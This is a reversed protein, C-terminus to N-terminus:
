GGPRAASEARSAATGRCTRGPSRPPRTTTGKTQLTQPSCCSPGSSSMRIPSGSGTKSSDSSSRSSRASIASSLPIKREAAPRRASSRGRGARSGSEWARASSRSRRTSRPRRPSSRGGRRARSRRAPAPRAATRRCARWRAPARRPSRPGGLSSGAARPRGAESRRARRSRDDAARRGARPCRRPALARAPTWRPGSPCSRGALEHRKKSPAQCRSHARRAVDPTQGRVRRFPHGAHCAVGKEGQPFKTVSEHGHRAGPRSAGGLRTRDPAGAVGLREVLRRLAERGARGARALAHLPVCATVGSGCYVVLEEAELISSPLEGDEPWPLSVAGPIRGPVRDIPNPEGRFRSPLRADVVVLAPDDLRAAIAEADMTDDAPPGPEFVVPEVLEEGASLPGRWAALGGALM